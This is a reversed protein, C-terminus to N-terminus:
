RKWQKMRKRELEEMRHATLVKLIKVLEECFDNADRTPYNQFSLPNWQKGHLEAFAKEKLLRWFVIGVPLGLKENIRKVEDTIDYLDSFPCKAWERLEVQYKKEWDLPNVANYQYLFTALHVYDPKKPVIKDYLHHTAIVSLLALLLWEIIGM